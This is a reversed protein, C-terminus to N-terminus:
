DGIEGDCVGDFGLMKFGKEWPLFLVGDEEREFPDQSLVICIAKPFDVRFGRLHKADVHSTQSSSKIEILAIPHNPREIILGIEASDTALYSFVADDEQYSSLRFFECIIFQEFAKGYDFGGKLLPIKLSNQLARTVGTDFLYFKPSKKQRKRLSHHYPELYFGLLTDELIQYYSKITKDQVGVDRAIASYNIEEGSMQACIPLFKRFPELSDILHEAWVEEKLYTNTYAKLFSSKERNSRLLTVKPLTGWALAQELSFDDGLERHTFPYLRYEFARGALLNAGDRKLKRASSGTLAFRTGDLSRDEIISHVINLLAPLKQIEDIVVWLNQNEVKKLKIAGALLSPNLALRRETEIDLLDFRLTEDPPLSGFLHNLLSTKGTGRAGFLFFSNTQLPNSLRVYKEVGSESFHRM